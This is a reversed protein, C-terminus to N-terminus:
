SDFGVGFRDLLKLWAGRRGQNTDSRAIARRTMQIGIYRLPEPPFPIPASRVYDLQLLESQPDDLLDLAVRAGFRSAAVGLGTYGVSFAIRRQMATGFTACFRSTTAIPGGWRHTFRLGYLQPFMTFFQQALLDFTVPRQERRAMDLRDGFYYVAEYGGWLIRNDATLRFYHFLSAADSLGQRRKWGISDLQAGSLPETMLAYDWVPVVRRRIAPLLGPFANTAVVVKGADIHVASRLTEARIMAGQADLGSCATEDYIRVGRRECAAALGVCLKAPDLIGANSRQWLGGFYTPSHVERQMAAPDFFEVSEGAETLENVEAQLGALQWDTTAVSLQGTAEFDADIDHRDLSAVLEAFNECGLELLRPLEKAFHSQGNALGHTLSADCFGGNRGSAGFAVRQSDIVVIDRSPDRESAQLAAWLGTYGGGIILLDCDITQTLPDRRSAFGPRDLWYVLPAADRLSPHTVESTHQTMLENHFEALCPRRTCPRLVSAYGYNRRPRPRQFSSDANM